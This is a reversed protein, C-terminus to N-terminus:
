RKLNSFDVKSAGNEDCKFHKCEGSLTANAAGNVDVRLDKCFVNVVSAGAGNLKMDVEENVVLESFTLDGVGNVEIELNDVKLSPMNVRGAGNMQIKLDGPFDVEGSTELECGGSCEVEEIVPASVILTISPSNKDMSIEGGKIDARLVGRRVEIEYNELHKENSRVRVSTISDQAFEIRVAGTVDIKTFEPLKMEKEVVRGWEESDEFNFNMSRSMVKQTVRQIIGDCGSLAVSAAMIAAATFIASVISRLRM